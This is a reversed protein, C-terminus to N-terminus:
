LLEVYFDGFEEQSKRQSNDKFLKSKRLKHKEVM